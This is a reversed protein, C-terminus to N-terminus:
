QKSCYNIFTQWKRVVEKNDESVVLVVIDDIARTNEVVKPNDSTYLLFVSGQPVGANIQKVESHTGDQKVRFARNTIYAKLIETYKRPM